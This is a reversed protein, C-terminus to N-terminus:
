WWPGRFDVPEPNYPEPPAIARRKKKANVRSNEEIIARAENIRTKGRAQFDLRKLWGPGLLADLREERNRIEELLSESIM